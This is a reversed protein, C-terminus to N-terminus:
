GSASETDEPRREVLRLEVQQVLREVYSSLPPCTIGALVANANTTDYTVPTALADIFARPSKAIRDIGPTRLIAKTLNPPLFGRPGKRGAAAAVLDFAAQATLPNPDAIHFTKGATGATRGIVHAARIVYDIPVLHLLTDGRGPLPLTVDPPATLILAIFPYPGDFRDLEGTESDGIVMTPRVTAIPLDKRARVVKEARALSEEVPTRFDDGEDEERLVGRRDGLAVTSSHHVLCRLSQALSAVELIERTSGVNARVAAARDLQANTTPAMHHIVDVCAALDRLEAGSLGLDISCPDGELVVVRGRDLGGLAARAEPTDRAVVYVLTRPSERLLHKCMRTAAFSPFGTLLVVEDFGEKPMEPAM